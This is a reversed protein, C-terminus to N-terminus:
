TMCFRTFLVFYMRLLRLCINRVIKHLEKLYDELFAMVVTVAFLGSILLHMEM